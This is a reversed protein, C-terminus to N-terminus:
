VCHYYKYILPSHLHLASTLKFVDVILVDSIYYSLNIVMKSVSLFLPATFLRVSRFCAIKLM